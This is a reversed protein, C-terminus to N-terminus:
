AEAEAYRDEIRRFTAVARREDEPRPETGGYRVDEFLRTLEDVDERGLGAEVAATAFEGPTSSAPDDVDLLSTMERWARYIENGVAADAELRDAAQGAAKGVAAVPPDDATEVADAEPDDDGSQWVLAAATGTIAVGLLLFVVFGPPSLPAVEGGGGSRGGLFSGNDPPASSTGSALLYVLALLIALLAGVVVGQLLHALVERPNFLAYVLMAIAVFVLLIRLIARPISVDTSGDAGISGSPIPLVGGPGSDGIGQGDASGSAGSDVTSDLTAAAFALALIALAAIVAYRTTENM